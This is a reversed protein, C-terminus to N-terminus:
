NRIKIKGSLENDWYKLKYLYVGYPLKGIYIANDSITDMTKKIVSKGKLSFLELQLQSIVSIDSTSLRVYGNGISYLKLANNKESSTSHQIDTNTITVSVLEIGLSAQSNLNKTYKRDTNNNWHEHVGVNANAAAIM